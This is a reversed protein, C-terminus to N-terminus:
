LGVLVAEIPINPFHAFIKIENIQTYEIGIWKRDKITQVLEQPTGIYESEALVIRVKRKTFGFPMTKIIVLVKKIDSINVTRKKTFRSYKVENSNIIIRESITKITCIISIILVVVFVFLMFIWYFRDDYKNVIAGHICPVFGICCMIDALIILVRARTSNLLVIENEKDM